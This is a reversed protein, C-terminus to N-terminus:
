DNWFELSLMHGLKPFMRWARRLAGNICPTKRQSDFRTSVYQTTRGPFSQDLQPKVEQDFPTPNNAQQTIVTLREPGFNPARLLEQAVRCLIRFPFDSM